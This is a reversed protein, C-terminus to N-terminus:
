VGAARCGISAWQRTGSAADDVGWAECLAALVQRALDDCADCSAASGLSTASSVCLQLRQDALEAELLPAGVFDNVARTVLESAVLAADETLRGDCGQGVLWAGVM